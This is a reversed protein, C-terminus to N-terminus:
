SFVPPGPELDKLSSGNNLAQNIADFDSSRALINMAKEAAEPQALRESAAKQVALFVPEKAFPFSGKDVVVFTDPYRLEPIFLRCYAIPIFCYLAKALTSDHTQAELLGLLQPYSAGPHTEFLDIAHDAMLLLEVESLDTPAYPGKPGRAPKFFDFLGM